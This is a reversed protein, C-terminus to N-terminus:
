DHVKFAAIRQEDKSLSLILPGSYDPSAM